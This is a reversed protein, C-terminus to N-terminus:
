IVFTLFQYLTFCKQQMKVVAACVPVSIVLSVMAIGTILATMFTPLTKNKDRRLCFQFIGIFKIFM